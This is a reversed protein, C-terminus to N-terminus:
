ETFGERKLGVMICESVDEWIVRRPIWRALNEENKEPMNTMNFQYALQKFSLSPMPSYFGTNERNDSLERTAIVSYEL